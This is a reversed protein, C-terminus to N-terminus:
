KEAVKKIKSYSIYLLIYNLTAAAFSFVLLAISFTAYGEFIFVVCFIYQLLFFPTTLVDLM